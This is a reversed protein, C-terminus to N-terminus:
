RSPQRAIPQGLELAGEEDMLRVDLRTRSLDLGCVVHSGPKTGDGSGAMLLPTSRPAGDEHCETGSV